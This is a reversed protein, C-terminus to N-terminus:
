KSPEDNSHTRSQISSNFVHLESPVTPPPIQKRNEIYRNLAKVDGEAVSKEEDTLPVEQMLRLIGDRAEILQATEKAVFMPCKLCAMRHPCSAWAPNACYAGDGLYYFIAPESRAAASPDIMVRILRSNKNARAISKALRTPQIKAYHQTSRLDKHGLWEGLEGITLGEPANYLASAMTARARHATINGRTDLEPVNAKRCLIPILRLNVYAPGIRKGRFSFLFDVLENTKPDLAPTQVPRVREWEAVRRGVMRHVPKTFSTGTKNVPVSLFCLADEPLVEGEALSVEDELRWRICGTRLRRIEDTRLGALCWVVVIARVLEFPYMDMQSQRLDSPELTDAAYLLKLWFKDDIVRPDPGILRAIARPTRLARQPNFRTPIVSAGAPGVRHPVNQLDMFFVRAISLVSAKTRPMLPKGILSNFVWPDTNPPRWDGVKLQDVAAIFDAALEYDWQEPSTVQPHTGALWRGIQMLRYLSQKKVGRSQTAHKYWAFCWNLWEQAVGETDLRELLPRSQHRRPLPTRIIKLDALARSLSYLHTLAFKTQAKQNLEVLLEFTINELYPSRNKLLTYALATHIKGQIGSKYGWKILVRLIRELSSAMRERGFVGQALTTLEIGHIPFRDFDAFGALVYAIGFLHQRATVVKAAHQHLFDKMTPGITEVWEVDDWAWYSTGRRQMELMLARITYCKQNTRLHLANLTDHLPETLRRLGIKSRERWPGASAGRHHIALYTLERKEPQSLGPDRNYREVDVLWHWEGATEHSMEIKMAM